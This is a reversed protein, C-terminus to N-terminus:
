GMGPRLRHLQYLLERVKAEIAVAAAFRNREQALTATARRISGDFRALILLREDDFAKKGIGYAVQIPEEKSLVATGAYGPKEASFGFVHYDDAMEM